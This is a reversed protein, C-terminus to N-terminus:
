NYVVGSIVTLSNDKFIRHIAKFVEMITMKESALFFFRGSPCTGEGSM